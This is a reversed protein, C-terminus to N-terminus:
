SKDEAVALNLRREVADLWNGYATKRNAVLRLLFRAEVLAQEYAKSKLSRELRTRRIQYDVRIQRELRSALTRVHEPYRTEGTAEYCAGAKRFLMVAQVGDYPDFPYREQKAVAFDLYREARYRAPGGEGCSDDGTFLQSIDMAPARGIDEVETDSFLWVILPVAFLVLLWFWVDVPRSASQVMSRDLLRVRLGPAELVTGWPVAGHKLAAGGALLEAGPQATVWCGEETPVLLFHVPLLGRAWPISIDASSASGVTVKDKRIAVLEVSDDKLVIEVFAQM